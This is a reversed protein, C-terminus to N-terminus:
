QWEGLEDVDDSERPLTHRAGAGFAEIAAALREVAAEDLGEEGAAEVHSSLLAFAQTLKAHVGIDGVVAVRAEALSM